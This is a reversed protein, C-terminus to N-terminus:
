EENIVVPSMGIRARRWNVKELDDYKYLSSKGKDDRIGVTGYEQLENRLMHLRDTMKAFIVWDGEGQICLEKLVPLYTTMLMSDLNHLIVYGLAGAQRRGVKSIAPYGFLNLYKKIAVLNISDKKDIKEETVRLESLVVTDIEPIYGSLLYPSYFRFVQDEFNISDLFFANKGAPYLSYGKRISEVLQNWLPSQKLKNLRQDAVMEIRKAMPVMRLWRSFQGYSKELSDAQMYEMGKRYFMQSPELDSTRITTRRNQRRGAVTSNDAIPYASGLGFTLISLDPLNYKERLYAKVSEARAKSLMINEANQNDTHGIIVFIKKSRLLNANYFSDLARQDDADLNSLNSEFHIDHATISELIHQQEDKEYYECYPTPYIDEALSDEDVKRINVRDIYFAVTNDGKRYLSPFDEDKFVGITLHQLNCLARIYWKIEMWKGPIIKAGFFYKSLIRNEGKQFIEKRTLYMGLHTYAVTDAIPNHKTYVWMSVEYVDGIELPSTLKTKIYTSGGTDSTIDNEAYFVKVMADGELLDLTDFNVYGREKMQQQGYKKVFYRHCYASWDHTGATEWNSLFRIHGISAVPVDFTSHKEFNSNPVLNQSRLSIVPLSFCAFLLFKIFNPKM